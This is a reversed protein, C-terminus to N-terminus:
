DNQNFYPIGDTNQQKGMRLFYSGINRYWTLCSDTQKLHGTQIALAMYEKLEGSLYARPLYLLPPDFRISYKDAWCLRSPDRGTKRAYHRSHDLCLEGYEKGLFRAALTAAFEPHSEGEPGDMNPKGAYGWDHIVICVLEKWSPFSHYLAIWACLVTFPHWLFQHVGFLLSLTGRATCFMWVTKPSFKTMEARRNM